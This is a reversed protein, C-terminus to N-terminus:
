NHPALFICPASSPLKGSHHFESPMSRILILPRGSSHLESPLSRILFFSRDSRQLESPLNRILILPRGSCHLESPLSRILFLPRHSRYLNLPLNRFLPIGAQVTCNQLVPGLLCYPKGVSMPPFSFKGFFLKWKTNSLPSQEM